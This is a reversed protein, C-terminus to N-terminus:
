NIALRQHPRDTCRQIFSLLHWIDRLLKKLTIRKRLISTHVIWLFLDQESTSKLISAIKEQLEWERTITSTFSCKSDTGMWAKQRLELSPRVLHCTLNAYLVDQPWMIHVKLNEKRTWQLITHIRYYKISTKWHLRWSTHLPM